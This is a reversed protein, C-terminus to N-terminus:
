KPKPLLVYFSGHVSTLVYQKELQYIFGPGFDYENTAYAPDNPSGHLIVAKFRQASLDQWFQDAIAPERSRIARFMFPDLMYPREGHIMPLLPDESLVPGKTSSKGTDAMAALMQGRQDNHRIESINRLCAIAASSILFLTCVLAALQLKQNKLRQTAIVLIAAANMDVLHNLHTGPSGYIIITGATCLLLLLAPLSTWRRTVAIIFIALLWLGLLTKDQTAMDTFLFRPGKLFRSIDGGGTASVHFIASARGDSVSQILLVAVATGALWILCLIAAQRSKGRLLLWIAAAAIGFISTVKATIALVFCIAGAILALQSERKATARIVLALGWLTLGTPLLDAKIGLLITRTCTAAVLFIAMAAAYVPPTKLRRMLTFLGTVAIVAALLGIVFGSTIASLGFRMFDAIIVPFLPAYRAGGYGLDSLVPRYLVGARADAAMCLWTGPSNHDLDGWYKWSVVSRATIALFLALAVAATTRHLPLSIDRELM